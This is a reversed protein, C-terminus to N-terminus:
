INLTGIDMTVSIAVLDSSDIDIQLIGDSSMKNSILTIARTKNPHTSHRTPYFVTWHPTVKTLHLFNIYPEQIICIDVNDINAM